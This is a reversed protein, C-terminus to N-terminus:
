AFAWLCNGNVPDTQQFDFQILRAGALDIKAYAVLDTGPGTSNILGNQGLQGQTLVITDCLYEDDTLQSPLAPASASMPGNINSTTCSLEALLSPIYVRTPGGPQNQGAFLEFWGYVRLSFNAGQQGAEAFPFVIIRDPVYHCGKAVNFVGDDSPVITRTIPPFFSPNQSNGLSLAKTLYNSRAVILVDNFM